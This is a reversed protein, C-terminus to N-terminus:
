GNGGGFDFQAIRVAIFDADSLRAFKPHATRLHHLAIPVAGFFGGFGYVRAAKQFGAVDGDHVFFAPQFQNVAFFVEDDNGTEVNIRVFDFFDHRM